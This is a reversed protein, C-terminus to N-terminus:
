IRTAIILKRNKDTFLPWCGMLITHNWQLNHYIEPVKTPSVVKIEEVKYKCSKGKWIYSIEDGVTVNWMSAFVNGYKNHEGWYSSTHGFILSTWDECPDPFTPYNVVWKKLESDFDAKLLKEETVDSPTVIPVNVWISWVILRNDPITKSLALQQDLPKNKLFKDLHMAWLEDGTEVAEESSFSFWERSINKDLVWSLVVPTQYASVGNSLFREVFLGSFTGWNMFLTWYVFTLRMVVMFIGFEKLSKKLVSDKKQPKQEFKQEFNLEDLNLMGSYIRCFKFNLKLFIIKM